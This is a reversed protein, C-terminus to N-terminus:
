APVVAPTPTPTNPGPPLFIPSSPTPAPPALRPVTPTIVPQADLPLVAYTYLDDPPAACNASGGVGVSLALTRADPLWAFRRIPAAKPPLDLVLHWLGTAIDLSVLRSGSDTTFALARADPTWAMSPAATLPDVSLSPLSAAVPPTLTRTIPTVDAPAALIGAPLAALSLLYLAGLRDYATELLAIAGGDPSWAIQEVDCLHAGDLSLLGTLTLPSRAPEGGFTDAYIALVCSGGNGGQRRVVALHREDPSWSLVSFSIGRQIAVLVTSRMVNAGDLAVAEIDQGFCDTCVTFCDVCQTTGGVCALTRRDDSLALVGACAPPLTVRQTHENSLRLTYFVGDQSVLLDAALPTPRQPTDLPLIADLVGPCHNRIDLSCPGPLSLRRMDSLEISPLSRPCFFPLDGVRGAIVCVLCLLVVAGTALPIGVRSRRRRMYVM